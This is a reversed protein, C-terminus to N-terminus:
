FFVLFLVFILRGGSAWAGEDSYWSSILIQGDGVLVSVTTM